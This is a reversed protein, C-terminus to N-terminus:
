VHAKFLLIIYRQGNSLIFVLITLSLNGSTDTLAEPIRLRLMGLTVGSRTVQTTALPRAYDGFRQCEFKEM